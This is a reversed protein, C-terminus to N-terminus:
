SLFCDGFLIRQEGQNDTQIILAGEEDVDVAIGQYVRGPIEVRVNKNLVMCYSRWESLLKQRDPHATTNEFDRLFSYLLDRRSVPRGLLEKMSVATKLGPKNNVNIGIGLNLYSIYESEIQIDSLIGAIKRYESPDFEILVDNPWKIVAPLNYQERFIKAVVLSAAFSYQWSYSMQESRKIICTFYLGGKDSLWIRKLRGRGHTQKEAVVVTGHPCGSEALKRAVKMTSETEFFFHIRDSYEQFEWPYLFDESEEMSYGQAQSFIRYGLEKLKQIHKWVAVRSVSLKRSLVEGSLPERSDRLLRIIKQKISNESHDSIEKNV